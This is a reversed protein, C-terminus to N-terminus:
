AAWNPAGKATVAWGARLERIQATIRRELNRSKRSEAIHKQAQALLDRRIQRCADAPLPNQETSDSELDFLEEKGTAFDFVLKYTGGRVALIRPANRTEPHLPNTCGRVCETIAARNWNSGHQLDRWCSRGRFDAPWPIELSDLLTPALDILSFPQDVSWANGPEPTRLLLPVHVTEQHLNIPPHFRGGHELFEEGHDATIALTCNSWLSLNVLAECLRHIQSDVWRIGADYLAIVQDRKKQLRRADLDSRGWWANLYKAQDADLHGCGLEGLATEKPFYPAHPDMLHLWLFVPRGANGTLWCIAHDVIVDASPFKRLFDLSKTEGARAKQCYHFYLEDYAAGLPGGAHCFRAIERNARTRLTTSEPDNWVASASAEDGGLFDQFEAFGLDYGFRRSLYPNAAIFAATQYGFDNLVSALTSEGPAIGITDRGLALPYRSALIAPLSYYTPTGAAVANKFVCSEPALTDLFPTTSATYGLFGIHDARLCDITVLILSRPPHM